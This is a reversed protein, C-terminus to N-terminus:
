INSSSQKCCIIIDLEMAEMVEMVETDNVTNTAECGYTGVDESDVDRITLIAETPTITM